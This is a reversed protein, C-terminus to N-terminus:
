GSAAGRRSGACARQSEAVRRTACRRGHQHVVAADGPLDGAPSLALLASVLARLRHPHWLRGREALAAEVVPNAEFVKLGGVVGVDPAFRGDAGIPAYIDLGYRVGTAFDDAGHGPRRTCRARARSSRSTTASCASRTATTSRIGSSRRARARAGKFSAVQRASRAARDAAAVTEALAEAVIVARGDVEYAGYDFDPHFAIALNSPITWPTTTWILVRSTAARRAGARSPALTATTTPRCRSSSTSRRRRTRRTSSKPKPWRRAIACAGTSRSRARTSRARARRVHRARPRHGGPLGADDHLYPDIGTASSASASSTRASRPSSSRPTPAAPAASSAGAVRGQRRRRAGERREARDAPRPLGLGPRVARRLGGDVAVQRRPGEPDQQARPRHPDPRQRVATRRAARVPARRAASARIQAYLDMADWRAITAPETAPLNAKM